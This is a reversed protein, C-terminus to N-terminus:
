LTYEDHDLLTDTKGEYNSNKEKVNLEVSDTDEEFVLDEWVEENIKERLQEKEYEKEEKKLQRKEIATKLQM